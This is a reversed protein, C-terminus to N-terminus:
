STLADFQEAVTFGQEMGDTRQGKRLMHMLEIVLTSQAACRNSGLMPWTIRQVSRHTQEVIHHVYQVQRSEMSAGHEENYSKVAAANAESDDIMMSKLLGNRCIAKKLFQLAAEKDGQATLLFDITQGHKDVACYLSRWTKDVYEHHDRGSAVSPRSRVL